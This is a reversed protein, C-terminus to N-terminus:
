DMKAEKSKVTNDYITELKEQNMALSFAQPFQPHRNEQKQIFHDMYEIMAELGMRNKIQKLLRIVIYVTLTCQATEAALKSMQSKEAEPNIQHNKFNSDQM